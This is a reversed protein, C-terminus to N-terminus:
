LVWETPTEYLYRSMHRWAQTMHYAAKWASGKFTHLPTGNANVVEFYEGCKIDYLYHLVFQCLNALRQQYLPRKTLLWWLSLASLAEGQTWYIYREDVPRGEPTTSQIFAGTQPNWGHRLCLHLLDDAVADWATTGLQLGAIRLFWAAELNHGISINGQTAEFSEQWDPLFVERACHYQPHLTRTAVLEALAHLHDKAFHSGTFAAVASAAEMSHLQTDLRKNDNFPFLCRTLSNMYGGHQKDWLHEVMWQLGEEAQQLLSPCNLACGAYALAYVAFATGYAVKSGNTLEGERSVTWFWGGCKPDVMREQLFQTGHEALEKWRTEGSWLYGVSFAYILRTQMVLFKEGNGYRTGDRELHTWFGGHERDVAYQEWFSLNHLVHQKIWEASPLTQESM